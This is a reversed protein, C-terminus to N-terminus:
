KCPFICLLVEDEEVVLPCYSTRILALVLSQLRGESGLRAFQISHRIREPLSRQLEM